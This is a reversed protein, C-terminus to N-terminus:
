AESREPELVAYYETQFLMVLTPVILVMGAISIMGLLAAALSFVGLLLTHGLNHWCLRGARRLVRLLSWEPYAVLLPGWYLSVLLVLLLLLRVAVDVIFWGQDEALIALAGLWFFLSYLPMLKLLGSKFHTRVNEAILAWGVPEGQTVERLVGFVAATAPPIALASYLTFVLRLIDPLPFAWALLLPLGQAVWLLNLGIMRELQERLLAFSRTLPGDAEEIRPGSDDFFPM